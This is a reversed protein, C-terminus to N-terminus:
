NVVTVPRYSSIIINIAKDRSDVEILVNIMQCGLAAVQSKVCYSGTLNM